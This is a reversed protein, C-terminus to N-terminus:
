LFSWASEYGSILESYEIFRSYFDNESITASDGVILLKKKARTMAVNMRRTDKLFGIDSNDNSRVLSIYIIDREQGQFGDVTDISINMNEFDSKNLVRRLENVQEKYPSIIGVSINEKIQNKLNTLHNILIKIEESNYFSKSQKNIEEYFGCGATDIFLFPSDNEFLLHNKVSDHAKLQNDYFESNSFNMINENMRYQIDLLVSSNPQNEISKEFLTIGLGSKIAKESKITPPLQRHDGALIIRDAKKIAIWCAPELSQGAEDIFLTSFYIKRLIEDSAGVFTSCIVQANEIIDNEIIKEIRRADNLLAKSETVLAKRNERQERDFNRKYKFAQNRLKNAEKYMKQLESYMLHNEIKADFTAKINKENVRAPNGLRLVNIGKDLLNSVMNDVATNSPATFLVQNEKILTHEIAKALTTTKGTGPPGHIICIDQASDIKIIANNQSENLSQYKLNNEKSFVAERKAYFIDKLYNIRKDDTNIIYNLAFEMEKFTKEDYYLDIGLKGEDLWQPVEKDSLMIKIKNQKVNLVTATVYNENIKNDFNSFLAVTKGSNFFHSKDKDSTKELEITIKQNFGTDVSDVVLPYWTTGKEKRQNLPTEIFNIRFEELEEKQEINILDLLKKLSDNVDSM